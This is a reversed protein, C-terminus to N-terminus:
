IGGLSVVAKNTEAVKQSLENFKREVFHEIDALYKVNLIVGEDTTLTTQPYFTVLKNLLDQDQPPLETIIPEALPYVVTINNIKIWEKFENVDNFENMSVRIYHGVGFDTTFVHNEQNTNGKKFRDCLVNKNYLYESNPLEAYFGYGVDYRWSANNTLIIRNSKKSLKWKEDSGRFISDWKSLEIPQSLALTSGKYPEYPTASTGEEIQIYYKDNLPKNLNNLSLNIGFHLTAEKTLTFSGGINDTVLDSKNIENVLFLPIKKDGEFSVTYTGKKLTFSPTKITNRGGQNESIGTLMLMGDAFTMTPYGKYESIYDNNPPMYLNKGNDGITSLKGNVIPVPSEPSSVGDQTTTGLFLPETEGQNLVRYDTSDTLTLIGEGGQSPKPLAVILRESQKASEEASLQSKDAWEKSETASNSANTESTKANDASQKARTEHGEALKLLDNVDVVAQEALGKATESENKYQLAKDESKKANTESTKANVESTKANRASQLVIEKSNIVINKDSEVINKNTDVEQRLVEVYNRDAITSEANKKSIESYYKSNDVNENDRTNTGGVAYSKSLVSADKSEKTSTNIIDIVKGFLERDEKSCFNEPQPRAKIKMIIKHETEGSNSDSPYIFAYGEYDDLTPHVFIFEPIEVETNGESDTTGIKRVAVGGTEDLSFHIEISPPLNLGKIRLTQGYDWQNLNRVVGVYENRIFNVININNM